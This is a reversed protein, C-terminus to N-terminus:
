LSISLASAYCLSHLCYHSCLAGYSAIFRVRAKGHEGYYSHAVVWELLLRPQMEQDTTSSFQKWAKGYSEHVKTQLVESKGSLLRQQTM